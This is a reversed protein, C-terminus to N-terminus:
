EDAADSTYLLCSLLRPSLYPQHSVVGMVYQLVNITKTKNDIAPNSTLMAMVQPSMLGTKCAEGALANPDRVSGVVLDFNQQLLTIINVGSSSSLAQLSM